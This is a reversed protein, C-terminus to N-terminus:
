VSEFGDPDTDFVIRFGIEPSRRTCVMRETEPRRPDTGSGALRRVQRITPLTGDPYRYSQHWYEGCWEKWVSHNIDGPFGDCERSWPLRGGYWRCYAAAEFWNINTVSHTAPNNNKDWLFGVEELLRDGLVDARRYMRAHECGGWSGDEFYGERIFRAWQSLSVPRVSVWATWTKTPERVIVRRYVEPM